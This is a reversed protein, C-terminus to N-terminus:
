SMSVLIKRDGKYPMRGHMVLVNDIMLLDGKEWPFMVAERDVNERITRITDDDLSDGDGYTVYTPLDEVNSYLMLLTEYIEEGMQLPHFQDAQNFWVKEGTTPHTIIGKRRQVLRLTGDSKWEFETDNNCCYTEVIEPNDSEFTEQWSKGSFGSGNHINRIYRLGKEELNRVISRPMSRLINRGDALPTEGGEKAPTICCFFLKSPWRSTYSLENHLIIRQDKDYETSTYVRSSLKTRPSNGDVYDMSKKSIGEMIRSFTVDSDIDVGRFLVAGTALLTREFSEKNDNFWSIFDNPARPVETYAVSIGIRNEM